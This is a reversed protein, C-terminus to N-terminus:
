RFISQVTANASLDGGFAHATVRYVAILDTPRNYTQMSGSDGPSIVPPLSEMAILPQQVVNPVVGPYAIAMGAPNNWDITDVVSGATPILEFMGNANAFFNSYTGNLLGIEAARLAAEAAQLALQHNHENMAMREEVTQMRAVTVGVLTLVLLLVLSTFLVAGRQRARAGHSKPHPNM